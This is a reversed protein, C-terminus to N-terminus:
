MRVEMDQANMNRDMDKIDMDNMDIEGPYERCTTESTTEYVTESDETNAEVRISGYPGAEQYIKHAKKSSTGEYVVWGAYRVTYRLARRGAEINALAKCIEDIDEEDTLDWWKLMLDRDSSRWGGEYLHFVDKVSHM